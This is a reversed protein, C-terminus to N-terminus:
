DDNESGKVSEVYGDVIAYCIEDGLRMIFKDKDDNYECLLDNGIGLTVVASPIAIDRDVEPDNETFSVKHFWGLGQFRVTLHSALLMSKEDKGGFFLIQAISPDVSPKIALQMSIFISACSSVAEKYAAPINGNYEMTVRGELGELKAAVYELIQQSMISNTYAVDECEDCYEVKRHPINITFGITRMTDEISM